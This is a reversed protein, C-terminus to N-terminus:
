WYSSGLIIPMNAQREKLPYISIQVM